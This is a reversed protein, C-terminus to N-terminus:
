ADDDEFSFCGVVVGSRSAARPLARDGAPRRRRGPRGGQPARRRRGRPRGGRGQGARGAGLRMALDAVRDPTAAASSRRGPVSTVDVVLPARPLPADPDGGQARVLQRIDRVRERRGAGARRRRPRRDARGGGGRALARLDPPGGGRLTAVAERGGARQRRRPRAARGDLLGAGDDRDRALGGLRAMLAGLEEARRRDPMFAGEGAKVDLVLRSAGSAIKKSMVSTAILPLSHTTATMDRLAYLRADAPALDASQGCVACASASSRIACRRWRCRRGTARRDVGAQGAHRRHPRSRPREDQGDPRRVRRGAAGRGADGQRWGRRDLAQGRGAVALEAAAGSAIMADLLAETERETMGRWVVAM